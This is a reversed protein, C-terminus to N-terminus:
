KRKKRLRVGVGSGDEWVFDVGAQSLADQILRKAERSVKIGKDAEARKVTPISVGAAEAVDAQSLGVLARGARVQGPTLFFDQDKQIMQYSGKPDDVSSM